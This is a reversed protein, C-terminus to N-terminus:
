LVADLAPVLHADGALARETRERLDVDHAGGVRRDVLAFEVGEADDLVLLASLGDHDGTALVELLLLARVRRGHPLRDHGAGHERTADGRHEVEAGEDVQTPADLAEEM